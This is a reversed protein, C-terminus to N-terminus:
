TKEAFDEGCIKMVILMDWERSSYEAKWPHSLWDTRRPRKPGNQKAESWNLISFLQPGEAGEEALWDWVNGEGTDVVGGHHEEGEVNDADDAPQHHNSQRDEKGHTLSDKATEQCDDKDTSDDKRKGSMEDLYDGFTM